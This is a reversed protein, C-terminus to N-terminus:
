QIVEFLRAKEYLEIQNSVNTKQYIRARYTAISSHHLHLKDAIEKQSTGQLLELLIQYERDSLKEFPNQNEDGKLFDNLLQESFDKSVYRGGALVKQVATLTEERPASKNLFGQVELSFLKKALIREPAMTFILIKTKPQIRRINPILSLINYDPLNVDQLILDYSKEKLKEIAEKGGEALDVEINRMNDRLLMEIAMGIMPHDDVILVTTKESM